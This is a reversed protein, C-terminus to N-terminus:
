VSCTTSTWNRADVVVVVTEAVSMAADADLVAAMYEARLADIEIGDAVERQWM